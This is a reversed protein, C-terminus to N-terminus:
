LTEALDALGYTGSHELTGAREVLVVAGPEGPQIHRGLVADIRPDRAGAPQALAPWPVFWLVLALTRLKM